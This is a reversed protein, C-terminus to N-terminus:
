RSFPVKQAEDGDVDVNVHVAVAVHGPDGAVGGTETL